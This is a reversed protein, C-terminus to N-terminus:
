PAEEDLPACTWSRSVFVSVVFDKNCETCRWEDTSEDYLQWNDDEALHVHGCYPCAAGDKSYTERDSM